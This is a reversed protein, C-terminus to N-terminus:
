TYLLFLVIPNRQDYDRKIKQITRPRLKKYQKAPKEFQSKKNRTLTGLRYRNIIASVTLEYKEALIKFAKSKKIGEDELLHVEEILQETSLKNKM